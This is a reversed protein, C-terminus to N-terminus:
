SPLIVPDGETCEEQPGRRHRRETAQRARDLAPGEVGWTALLFEDAVHACERIRFGEAEAALQSSRAGRSRRTKHEGISAEYKGKGEHVLIFNYLVACTEVVGPVKDIRFYMRNKM